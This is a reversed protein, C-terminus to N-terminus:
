FEVNVTVLGGHWQDLLSTTKEYKKNYPLVPAELEPISKIKGTLFDDLVKKCHKLRFSVAGIRLDQVEFGFPKREKDWVLRFSKYFAELRKLLKPYVNNSIDSLQKMDKRLYANRTKVGLDYKLEMVRSLNKMNTFLYSYEGTKNELLALQRAIKKYEQGDGEEIHYDLKGCFPDNYLGYRCPNGYVNGKINNPLDLKMFDDFSIGFLKQFKEKILPLDTDYLYKEACFFLSPLVSYFSCENGDDGWMTIVVSEIQNNRCASLAEDMSRLSRENQPAFGSWTWAGGAFSVKDTLAKHNKLSKDYHEEKESYYNWHCLTVDDPVFKKLDEGNTPLSFFLDSWMSAKFGYKRAIVLVKQLHQYLLEVRNEKYGHKHLYAGLGVRGAEDMGINIQDTDFCERLTAFMKDILEYTKPEDILLIDGIDRVSAYESWQLVAGLHALTQIYPIATMDISKLYANVDKLEEKTYRGRLHGFYPEGDIEYVDEMYLGLANYGMRKVVRAFSKIQEVQLPGNRSLDLMATLFKKEKM